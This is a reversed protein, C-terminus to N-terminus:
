WQLATQHTKGSHANMCRLSCDAGKSVSEKSQANRNFISLHSLHHNTDHGFSEKWWWWRQEGKDTSIHDRIYYFKIVLTHVSCSFLQFHHLLKTNSHQKKKHAFPWTTSNSGNNRDQPLFQVFRAYNTM